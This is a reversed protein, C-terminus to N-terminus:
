SSPRRWFSPQCLQCLTESIGKDHDDLVNTTQLWAFSLFHFLLLSSIPTGSRARSEVRAAEVGGKGWEVVVKEGGGGFVALDEEPLDVVVHELTPV